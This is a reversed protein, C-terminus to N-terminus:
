LPFSSFCKTFLLIFNVVPAIEEYVISLRSQKLSQVGRRIAPMDWVLMFSFILSVLSQLWCFCLLNYIQIAAWIVLMEVKIVGSAEPVWYGLGSLANFRLETLSICIATFSSSSVFIFADKFCSPICSLGRQPKKPMVPLLFLQQGSDEPSLRFLCSPIFFQVFPAMFCVLTGALCVSQNCLHTHSVVGGYGRCVRQDNAASGEVKTNQQRCSIGSLCTMM